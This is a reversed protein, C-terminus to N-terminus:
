GLVKEIAGILTTPAIPKVIWGRAGLSKADEVVKQDRETTLIIVPIKALEEDARMRRLLSIGDFKPMNIDLLVLLADPNQQVVQFGEAGDGAELFDYRGYLASSVQKRITPSDDVLVIKGAM